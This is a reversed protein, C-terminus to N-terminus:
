PVVLDSQLAVQTLIRAKTRSERIRFRIKLIFWETVRTLNREVNDQQRAYAYYKANITGLLHGM